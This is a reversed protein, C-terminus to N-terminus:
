PKAGSKKEDDAAARPDTFADDQELYKDHHVSLDSAGSRFRGAAAMARRRLESMDALTEPAAKPLEYRGPDEKVAARPARAAGARGERPLWARVAERVFESRTKKAGRRESEIRKFEAEPMSVTFKATKSV